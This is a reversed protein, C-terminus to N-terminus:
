LQYLTKSYPVEKSWKQDNDENKQIRRTAMRVLVTVSSVFFINNHKTRVAALKLLSFM